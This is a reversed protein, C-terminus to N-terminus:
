KIKIQFLFIFVEREAIVLENHEIENQIAEMHQRYSNNKKFFFDFLFKKGCFFFFFNSEKNTKFCKFM